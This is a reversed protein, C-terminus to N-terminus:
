EHADHAEAFGTRLEDEQKEDVEEAFEAERADEIRAARENREEHIDPKPETNERQLDSPRRYTM